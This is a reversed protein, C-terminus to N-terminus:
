EEIVITKLPYYENGDMDRVKEETPINKIVAIKAESCHYSGSHYGGSKLNNQDYPKSIGLENKISYNYQVGKSIVALGMENDYVPRDAPVFKINNSIKYKKIIEPSPKTRFVDAHGYAPFFCVLANPHYKEIYDLKL